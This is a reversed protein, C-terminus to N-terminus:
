HRMFKAKSQRNLMQFMAFRTEATSGIARFLRSGEVDNYAHLASVYEPDDSPPRPKARKLEAAALERDLKQLQEEQKLNRNSIASLERYRRLRDM